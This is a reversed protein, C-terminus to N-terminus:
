PQCSRCKHFSFHLTIFLRIMSKPRFILIAEVAGESEWFLRWFHLIGKKGYHSIQKELIIKLSSGLIPSSDSNNYRSCQPTSQVSGEESMVGLEHSHQWCVARLGLTVEALSLGGEWPLGCGTVSKHPATFAWGAWGAEAARHLWGLKVIGQPTSQSDLMFGM